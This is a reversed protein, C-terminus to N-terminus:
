HTVEPLLKERVAQNKIGYVVRDRIMEDQEKYICPKALTKLDTIYKELTPQLIQETVRSPIHGDGVAAINPLEQNPLVSEARSQQDEPCCQLPDSLHKKNRKDGVLGKNRCYIIVAARFLCHNNSSELHKAPISSCTGFGQYSNASKTCMFMSNRRYNTM